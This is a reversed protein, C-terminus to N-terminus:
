KTRKPRIRKLGIRRDHIMKACAELKANRVCERAYIRVPGSPEFRAKNSYERRNTWAVGYSFGLVFDPERRM